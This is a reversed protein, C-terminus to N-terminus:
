EKQNRNRGFTEKSTIQSHICIRNARALSFFQSTVKTKRLYSPPMCMVDRVIYSSSIALYGLIRNRTLMGISFQCYIFSGKTGASVFANWVNGIVISGADM